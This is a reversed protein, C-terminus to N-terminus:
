DKYKSYKKGIFEVVPHVPYVMNNEFSKHKHAFNHFYRRSLPTKVVTLIATYHIPTNM